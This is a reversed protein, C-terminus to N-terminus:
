GKKVWTKGDRIAELQELHHEMHSAIKEMLDAVALKKGEKIVFSGELTTPALSRITHAMAERTAIILGISVELPREAAVLRDVWKNEDFSDVTAGSEAIAKFLRNLFVSDTDALHSIIQHGTWKGQGYSRALHQEGLTAIEAVRDAGELLREATKQYDM